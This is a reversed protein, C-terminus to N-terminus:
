LHIPRVHLTFSDHHSIEIARQIAECDKCTDKRSHSSVGKKPAHYAFKSM